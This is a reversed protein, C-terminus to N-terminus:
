RQHVFKGVNLELPELLFKITKLLIGSYLYFSRYIRKRAEGRQGNGFSFVYFRVVVTFCVVGLWKGSGTSFQGM